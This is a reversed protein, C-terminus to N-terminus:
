RAPSTAWPVPPGIGWSSRFGIPCRRFTGDPGPYKDYVRVRIDLARYASPDCAREWAAESEYMLNYRADAGAVQDLTEPVGPCNVAVHYGPLPNGDLDQLHGAVGSWPIGYM